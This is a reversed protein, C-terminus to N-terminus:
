PRTEQVPSLAAKRAVFRMNWFGGFPIMAGLFLRLRDRLSWASPNESVTQIAVWGFTLFALGHVPGLIRVGLPWGFVHKLPVAVLMLTVLTMAEIGSALELSRNPRTADATAAPRLPDDVRVEFSLCVPCNSPAIM